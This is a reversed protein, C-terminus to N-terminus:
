KSTLAVSPRRQLLGVDAIPLARLIDQVLERKELNDKGHEDRSLVHM